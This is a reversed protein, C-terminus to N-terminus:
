GFCFHQAFWRLAARAEDMQSLKCPWVERWPVGWDQMQLEASDPEDHQSLDGTVQLAPGGTTLLIRYESASMIEGPSSWDSRVSVELPMELIRQDIEERRTENEEDLAENERYLDRIEDLWAKANEYAHQYEKMTNPM